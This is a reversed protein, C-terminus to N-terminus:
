PNEPSWWDTLVKNLSSWESSYGDLWFENSLIIDRKGIGQLFITLDIGKWEFFSKIGYSYRATENGIIKQDGPDKLTNNRRNIKGDNNLDEFFLDGATRKCSSINNQNLTQAEEDTQFIGGTVFGWIEGIDKGVYFDT